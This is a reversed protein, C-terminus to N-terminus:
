HDDGRFPSGGIGCSGVIVGSYSCAYMSFRSTSVILIAEVTALFLAMGSGKEECARAGFSLGTFANCSLQSRSRFLSACFSFCFFAVSEKM